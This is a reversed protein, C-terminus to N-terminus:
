TAEEEALPREKAEALREMLRAIDKPSILEPINKRLDCWVAFLTPLEDAQEDLIAIVRLSERPHRNIESSKCDYKWVKGQLAPAKPMRLLTANAAGKYNNAIEACLAALDEEIKRYSKKLNKVDRKFTPSTTRDVRCKSM